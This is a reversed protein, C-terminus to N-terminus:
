APAVLISISFATSFFLVYFITIVPDALEITPYDGLVSYPKTYLFGNSHASKSKISFGFLLAFINASLIAQFVMVSSYFSCFDFILNVEISGYKMIPGGKYPSRASVFEVQEAM